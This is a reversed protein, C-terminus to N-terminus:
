HFSTRDSIDSYGAAFWEGYFAASVATRPPTADGGCNKQKVFVIGPALNTDVTHFLDNKAALRRLRNLELLPGTSALNSPTAAVSKWILRVM